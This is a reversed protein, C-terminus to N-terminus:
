KPFKPTLRGNQLCLGDVKIPERLKDNVGYIQARTQNKHSINKHLSDRAARLFRM